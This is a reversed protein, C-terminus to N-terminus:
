RYRTLRGDATLQMASRPLAPRSNHAYQGVLLADRLRSHGLVQADQLEGAQHAVPALPALGVVTGLRL